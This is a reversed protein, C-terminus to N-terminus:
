PTMEQAKIKGFLPIKFVKLARQEGESMAYGAKNYAKLRKMIQHCVGYGQSQNEAAIGEAFLYGVGSSSRKDYAYCRYLILSSGAVAGKLSFIGSFCVLMALVIKARVMVAFNMLVGRKMRRNFLALKVM